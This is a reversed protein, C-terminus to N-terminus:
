VVGQDGYDLPKYMASGKKSYRWYQGGIACWYVRGETDTPTPERAILGNHFRCIAHEATRAEEHTIPPDANSSAPYPLVWKQSGGEPATGDKLESPKM